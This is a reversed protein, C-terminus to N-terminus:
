KGLGTPLIILTNKFLAHSVMEKQYIRIPVNTPYHWEKMAEKDMELNNEDDEFQDEKTFKEEVKEVEELDLNDFEDDEEITFTPTIKPPESVPKQFTLQPFDQTADIPSQEVTLDEEETQDSRFTGRKFVPIKM